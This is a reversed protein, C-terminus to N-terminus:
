DDLPLYDGVWEKLWGLMETGGWFLAAFYALSLLFMFGGAVAAYGDEEMTAAALLLVTLAPLGNSFPIPFPLTMLLGCIMIIAGTFNRAVRWRVFWKLRPRLFYELFRVLRRTAGLLRPFFRPPLATDLLRAPLWPKQGLALRLGVFAIVLGFPISLGPLPIPTCFPFALVILLVTFGRHHLVKLVERLRVAREAFTDILFQLEESLRRREAPPSVIARGDELEAPDPPTVPESSM